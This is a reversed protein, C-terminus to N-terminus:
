EGVMEIGATIRSKRRLCFKMSIVWLLGLKREGKLARLLRWSEHRRGAIPQGYFLTLRFSGVGGETGIGMNIHYRSFNRVDVQTENNWLIALRGSLGIRDVAFCNVFGLKMRLTDWKRVTVKTEILCVVRPRYSRLLDKMGWVATPGGMGRCNWCLIKM